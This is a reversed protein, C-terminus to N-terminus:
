PRTKKFFLEDAVVSAPLMHRDRLHSAVRGKRRTTYHPCYPCLWRWGWGDGPLRM